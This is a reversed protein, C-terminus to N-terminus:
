YGNVIVIVVACIVIIYSYTHTHQMYYATYLINCARSNQKSGRPCQSFGGITAAAKGISNRILCNKCMKNSVFFISFLKQYVASVCFTIPM